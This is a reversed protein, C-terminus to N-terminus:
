ILCGSLHKFRKGAVHTLISMKLSRNIQTAAGPQQPQSKLRQDIPEIADLAQQTLDRARQRSEPVGLLGPYTLKGRAADQGVGKGTDAGPDNPDEALPSLSDLAFGRVSRDGGAFFRETGPLDGTDSIVSAGLQGRLFLHWKPRLDFVREAEVRVGM